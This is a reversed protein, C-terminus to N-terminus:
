QKSKWISFSVSGAAYLIAGTIALASDLPRGLRFIGALGLLCLAAGAIQALISSTTM